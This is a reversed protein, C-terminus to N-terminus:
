LSCKVKVERISADEHMCLRALLPAATGALVELEMHQACSTLLEVCSAAATSSDDGQQAGPAFIINNLESLLQHILPTSATHVVLGCLACLTSIVPTQMWLAQYTFKRPENLLHM